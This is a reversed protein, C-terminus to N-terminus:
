GLKEAQAAVVPASVQYRKGDAMDGLNVTLYTVVNNGHRVAQGHVSSAPGGEELSAGTLAFAVTEDAGESTVGKEAAVTDYPAPDQGPLTVTFGDACSEVADAVSKVAQQAGDGDYTALTIMTVDLRMADELSPVDGEGAGEPREQTAQRSVHAKADGATSGSVVKALADCGDGGEVKVDDFSGGFLDDEGPETVTFGEVDDAALILGALEKESLARGPAAGDDAPSSAAHSSPAADPKGDSGGSCGTVLALSLVGTLTLAGLRARSSTIM